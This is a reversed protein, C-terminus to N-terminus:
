LQSIFAGFQVSEASLNVAAGVEMGGISGLFATVVGTGAAITFTPVSTYGSGPTLIKASTIIGGATTVSITAGTGGGGTAAITVTGNTGGTGATTIAVGDVGQAAALGAYFWHATWGSQSSSPAGARYSGVSTPVFRVFYNGSATTCDMPFNIFDSSAPNYVPDGAQAYSTPGTASLLAPKIEGTEATQGQVYSTNM